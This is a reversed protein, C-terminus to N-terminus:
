SNPLQQRTNKHACRERLAHKLLKSWTDTTQDETTKAQGGYIYLTGNLQAAKGYTLMGGNEELVWIDNPSEGQHAWRRCVRTPSEERREVISELVPGSTRPTERIVGADAVVPSVTERGKYYSSFGPLLVAILLAITSVRSLTSLSPPPASSVTRIRPRRVRPLRAYWPPQRQPNPELQQQENEADAQQTQQRDEEAEAETERRGDGDSANDDTPEPGQTSTPSALGTLEAFEQETAYPGSPEDTDLDLEKFISKRDKCFKRSM